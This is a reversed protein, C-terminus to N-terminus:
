GPVPFTLRTADPDAATALEHYNRPEAASVADGLSKRMESIEGPPGELEVFLGLGPLEDLAIEIQRAPHRFVRRRKELLWTRRLGQRELAARAEDAGAVPVEVEIRRHSGDAHFSRPGKFAADVGDPTTRLRCVLDGGKLISEPSDYYEDRHLGEGAIAFGHRTLAALLAAEDVVRHKSENEEGNAM